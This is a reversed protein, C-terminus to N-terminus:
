PALQTHAQMPDVAVWITFSTGAGAKSQVEIRGGHSKVINQALYLGLGTGKGRPKTTFFADFIHELHAEEIGAGNDSFRIWVQEAESGTAVTILGKSEIAQAANIIMNLFVQNLRSIQCRVKPLDGFERRVEAKSKIEGHVINLTSNLAEHLDAWEWVEEDIHSLDKLDKAIQKVRGMGEKSESILEWLDSRLYGLDIDAKLRELRQKTEGNGLEAECQEYQELLGFLDRLYGELSAMNSAVYGIPNNIEHAIGAALQGLSAMKEYNPLQARYEALESQAKALEAECQLLRLALEHSGSEQMKTM